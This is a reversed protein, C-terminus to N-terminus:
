PRSSTEPTPKSKPRHKSKDTKQKPALPKVPLSSKTLRREYYYRIGRDMSVMFGENVFDALKSFCDRVEGIKIDDPDVIYGEVLSERTSQTLMMQVYLLPVGAKLNSFSAVMRRFDHPSGTKYIVQGSEPHTLIQTIGEKNKVPRRWKDTVLLPTNTPMDLRTFFAKSEKLFGWEGRMKVPFFWGANEIAAWERHKELRAKRVKLVNIASDSLPLIIKSDLNTDLFVWAFKKEYDINEFRLTRAAGDRLGTYLLLSIFDAAMFDQREILSDLACRLNYLDDAPIIVKKRKPKAFQKRKNLMKEAVSVPNRGFMSGDEDINNIIAKLWARFKYAIAPSGGHGGTSKGDYLLVFRTEVWKATCFEKLPKDLVDTLHNEFTSKIDSVSPKSLRTHSRLYEDWAERLTIGKLLELRDAEAQRQKELAPSLNKNIKATVGAYVTLADSRVREATIPGHSKNRRNNISEVIDGWTAVFEVQAARKVPDTYTVYFKKQTKTVRMMLRPFVSDYYRPTTDNKATSFPIAEIASDTFEFVNNKHAVRKKEAQEVAASSNEVQLTKEM